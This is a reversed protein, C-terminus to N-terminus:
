AKHVAVKKFFDFLQETYNMYYFYQQSILKGKKAIQQTEIPHTICYVIKEEIQPVNDAEIIFANENNRFYNKLEGTNSIIVPIERPLLETLKTPFNYDNQANSPKNVIALACNTYLEDLKEKSVLGKFEIFDKLQNKKIFNDIWSLLIPFGIKSTFVFKLKGNLKKHALAFAQIMAKVGDKTESLAGAHLIYPITQEHNKRNIEKYGTLIPIKIVQADNNKHKLVLDHLPQSIVIIGDVKTLVKNLFYQRQIFLSLQTDTRRACASYPNENLEVVIKGGNEHVTKQIHNLFLNERSTTFLVDCKQALSGCITAYENAVKLKNFRTQKTALVFSYHVGEFVGSEKEKESPMVIEVEVGESQLAKLYYHLRYSMPAFGNPYEGPYFAIIKM